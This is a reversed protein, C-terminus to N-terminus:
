PIEEDEFPNTVEFETADETVDEAVNDAVDEVKNEEEDGTEDAPTDIVEELASSKAYTAGAFKESVTFPVTNSM